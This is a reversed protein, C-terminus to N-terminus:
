QAQFRGLQVLLSAAPSSLEIRVVRLLNLAVPEQENVVVCEFRSVEARWGGHPSQRSEIVMPRTKLYLQQLLQIQRLAPANELPLIHAFKKVIFPILGIWYCLMLIGATHQTQYM